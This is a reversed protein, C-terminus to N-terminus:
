PLFMGLADLPPIQNACITNPERDPDDLFATIITSGCGAVLADLGELPGHALSRAAVLHSNTLQDHLQQGLVPPTVHDVEGTVLLTPIETALELQAPDFTPEVDWLECLETTHRGGIGAQDFWREELLPSTLGAAAVEADYSAGEGSCVMSTYMGRPIDDLGEEITAVLGALPELDGEQAAALMGVLAFAGDAAYFAAFVSGLFVEGTFIRTIPEGGMLPEATVEEPRDTLRDTVEAIVEHIDGLQEACQEDQGCGENLRDLASEFGGAMTELYNQTPDVPSSLVLAAFGDPALAAAHLALHSGYSGGRLVVQDHGLARRVLDVDRANHVHDFAELDVGRDVLEERCSLLRDREEDPDSPETLDQDDFADCSLEPDSSGVGRQDLLIVERGELAYAQQIMPESLANEVVVEGPGGGLVLVPEDSADEDLLTAVALTITEGDPDDHHLPVTVTGCRVEDEELEVLEIGFCDPDEAFADVVAADPDDGCAAVLAVIALLGVLPRLLRRAPGQAPASRRQHTDRGRTRVDRLIPRM